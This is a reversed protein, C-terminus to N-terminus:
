PIQLGFQRLGRCLEIMPLGVLATPDESAVSEFLSIGLSEVKFSGACHLPQDREVYRAITSADLKRLTALTTDLATYCTHTQVDLLHLATYFTVTQGSMSALQRCANEAHLPKGLLTNRTSAVQDSAIIIAPPNQKAASPSASSPLADSLLVTSPLSGSRSARLSLLRIQAAEAKEAALRVALQAPPEDTRASEDIDPSIVQFEIGLRALLEARYQSGSALVLAQM